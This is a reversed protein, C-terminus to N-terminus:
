HLFDALQLRSDGGDPVRPMRLDATGLDVTSNASKALFHLISVGRTETMKRGLIRNRKKSHQHMKIPAPNTTGEM